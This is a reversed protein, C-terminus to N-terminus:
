RADRSLDSTSNGGDRHSEDDTIGDSEYKGDGDSRQSQIRRSVQRNKLQKSNVRMPVFEQSLKKFMIPRGLKVTLNQVVMVM